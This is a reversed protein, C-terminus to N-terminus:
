PKSSFDAMGTGVDVPVSVHELAILWKGDIKKYCDTVRVTLDVAKGDTNTWIGHQISHSWGLKGDTTVSLDTIEFKVSGRISAFTDAFDRKYADWGAYQRPPVLDFVLLEDGPVYLKMVADVDKAMFAAAFSKEVDRIAQEEKGQARSQAADALGAIALLAAAAYLNFRTM